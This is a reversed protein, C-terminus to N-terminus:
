CVKVSRLLGQKELNQLWKEAAKNLEPDWGPQIKREIPSFAQPNDRFLYARNNRPGIIDLYPFGPLEVEVMKGGWDIMSPRPHFCLTKEDKLHLRPWRNERRQRFLAQLRSAVMFLPLSVAFLGSTWNRNVFYSLAGMAFVLTVAGVVSYWIPQAPSTTFLGESDFTIMPTTKLPFERHDRISDQKEIGLRSSECFRNAPSKTTFLRSM